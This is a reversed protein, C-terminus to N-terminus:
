PTTVEKIIELGNTTWVIRCASKTNSKDPILVELTETEDVKAKAYPTNEEGKTEFRLYRDNSSSSAGYIEVKGKNTKATGSHISINGGESSNEDNGTVINISGAKRNTASAAPTKTKISIDGPSGSPTEITLSESGTFDDPNPGSIVSINKVKNGVLDIDNIIINATTDTAM